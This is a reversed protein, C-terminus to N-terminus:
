LHDTTVHGLVEDVLKLVGNACGYSAQYGWGGHGYNHVVWVSGIREREIRVGGLRLPRLGVGHRIISLAEVGKGHMLAPCLDVARKMIRMALNPVPQSDWRGKEYIGGLITGGGGARPMIYSIEDRGDDTDSITFMGGPYNRVLVTQGRVPIVNKDMVGGLTSALLGTCNIILDTPESTHHLNSAQTVHSVIARRLVCGQKRCQGGCAM